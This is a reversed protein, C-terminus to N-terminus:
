ASDASISYQKVCVGALESLSEANCVAADASISCFYSAPESIRSANSKSTGNLRDTARQYRTLGILKPDRVTMSLRIGQKRHM